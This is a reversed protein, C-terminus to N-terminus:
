HLASYEQFDEGYKATVMASFLAMQSENCKEPDPIWLPTDM